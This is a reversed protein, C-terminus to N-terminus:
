VGRFSWRLNMVLCFKWKLFQAAKPHIQMWRFLFFYYNFIWMFRHSICLICRRPILFVFVLIWLFFWLYNNICCWEVTGKIVLVRRNTLNILSIIISDIIFVLKVHVLKLRNERTRLAIISRYLTCPSKHYFDLSTKTVLVEVLVELNNLFVHFHVLQMVFWAYFLIEQLKIFWTWLNLVFSVFLPLHYFLNICQLYFWLFLFTNLEQFVILLTGM